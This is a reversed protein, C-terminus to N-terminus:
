TSRAQTRRELISKLSSQPAAAQDRLQFHRASYYEAFEISIQKELIFGTAPDISTPAYPSCVGELDGVLFLYAASNLFLAYDDFSRLNTGLADEVDNPATTSRVMIKALQQRFM